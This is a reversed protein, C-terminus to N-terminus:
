DGSDGDHKTTEADSGDPDPISEIAPPGTHEDDPIMEADPPGTEEDPPTIVRAVAEKVFRSHVGPAVELILGDDDVSVITAYQGHRTLVEVGPQLTSTTEQARKARARQPRILLFYAIAGFILLLPLTSLLSSSSGKTTSGSSGAALLHSALVALSSHM